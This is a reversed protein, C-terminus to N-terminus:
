YSVLHAIWARGRNISAIVIGSSGLLHELHAYHQLIELALAFLDAHVPRYFGPCLDIELSALLGVSM